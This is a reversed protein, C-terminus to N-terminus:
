WYFTVGGRILGGGSANTAQHTEEDVFEPRSNPRADTRGRVFGLLDAGIAVKKSVRGEVGIGTHLGFYGYREEFSEGPAEVQVRAGSMGFGGEWFVQVTSRPNFYLLCSALFGTERREFGNYDTGGMLELGADIALMRIPRYRFAFGLGAMGADNEEAGEGMLAGALHLNFGWERVKRPKKPKAPPKEVVIVKGPKKSGKPTYVVVPPGEDKAKEERGQVAVPEEADSAEAAGGSDECFWDGDPCEEQAFAVSPLLTLAAAAALCSLRM